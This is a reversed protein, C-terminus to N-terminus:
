VLESEIYAKLPEMFSDKWELSINEVDEEPVNEHFIHITTKDDKARFTFTVKSPEAWDGSFWEQILEDQELVELNKGHIDGDWLSFETGEQDDMIAPSGTWKEIHTKDTLAEWVVDIPAHITYNQEIVKM